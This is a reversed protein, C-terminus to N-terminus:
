SRNARYYNEATFTNWTWFQNGQALILRELWLEFNMNLPYAPDIMADDLFYLYNPNGEEIDQIKVVTYGIDRHHAVPYFGNEKILPYLNDNVDEIPFIFIGGGYDDVFLDLGNSMKYFVELDKPLPLEPTKNKFDNIKDDTVSPKFTCKLSRVLGKKNQVDISENEGLRKKLGTLTLECLDGIKM